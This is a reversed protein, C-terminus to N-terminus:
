AWLIIKRVKRARAENATGRGLSSSSVLNLAGLLALLVLDPAILPLLPHPYDFDQQAFKAIHFQPWPRYISFLLGTNRTGCATGAQSVESRYWQFLLTGISLLEIGSSRTRESTSCAHSAEDM